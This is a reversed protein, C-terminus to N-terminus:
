GEKEGDPDVISKVRGVRGDTLQVKIGHPHSGTRTLIKRVTGQVTRGSRQDGKTVIDVRMGQRLAARNRPDKGSEM